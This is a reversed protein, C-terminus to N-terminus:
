PSLDIEPTLDQTPASARLPESCCFLCFLLSSCSLPSHLIALAVEDITVM